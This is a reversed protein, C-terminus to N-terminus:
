LSKEKFNQQFIFFLNCSGNFYVYEEETISIGANYDGTEGGFIDMYQEGNLAIVILVVLVFPVIFLTYGSFLPPFVVRMYAFFKFKPPHKSRTFMRNGAWFMFVCLISIFAIIIYIVSYLDVDFGFLNVIEMYQLLQLEVGFSYEVNDPSGGFEAFEMGASIIKKKTKDVQMYGLVLTVKRPISSGGGGISYVPVLEDTERIQAFTQDDSSQEYSYPFQTIYFVVEGDEIEFWRTDDETKAINEEFGCTLENQCTDGKSMLFPSWPDVPVVEGEDV